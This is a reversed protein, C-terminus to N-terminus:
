ELDWRRVEDSTAWDREYVGAAVFKRFSSSPWEVAASAHGHKVPNYHIYDVHREFDLDDRIAHEWYRRQWLGREGRRARSRSIPEGAPVSRSFRGKILRWRSAYDADGPPLTWICHLHDPLIVIADLAFPHAQRVVRFAERLSDIRDTLRVGNRRDAVVLTFFYTGGGIRARIYNRM